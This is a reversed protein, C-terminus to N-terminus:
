IYYWTQGTRREELEAERHSEGGDAPVAIPV